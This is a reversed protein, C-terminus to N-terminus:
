EIDPCLFISVYWPTAKIKGNPVFPDIQVDETLSLEQKAFLSLAEGIQREHEEIRVLYGTALLYDPNQARVSESLVRTRVRGRAGDAILAEKLVEAQGEAKPGSASCAFIDFDWDGWTSYAVKQKGAAQESIGALSRLTDVESNAKNLALQSEVVQIELTKDPEKGKALNEAQQLKQENLTRALEKKRAERAALEDLSKVEDAAWAKADKDDLTAALYRLVFVREIGQQALTNSVIRFESDQKSESVEQKSTYYNGVIEPITLIATVLGVLATIWGPSKWIPESM